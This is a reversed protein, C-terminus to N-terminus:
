RGLFLVLKYLLNNTVPLRMLVVLLLLGSTWGALMSLAFWLRSRALAKSQEEMLLLTENAEQLRSSLVKEWKQVAHLASATRAEMERRENEGAQKLELTMETLTLAIKEVTVKLEEQPQAQQKLTSFSSATEKFTM